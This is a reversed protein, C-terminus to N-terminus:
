IAVRIRCVPANLLHIMGSQRIATRAVFTWGFIMVAIIPLTRRAMGAGLDPGINVKIVFVRWVAERAMTARVGMVCSLTRITVDTCRSPLIHGIVVSIDRFTFCAM